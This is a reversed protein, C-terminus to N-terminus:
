GLRINDCLYDRLGASRLLMEQGTAPTLRSYAAYHDAVESSSVLKSQTQSQSTPAAARRAPLLPMKSHGAKAAQALSRRWRDSRALMRSRTAPPRVPLPRRRRM